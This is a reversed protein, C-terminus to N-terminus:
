VSSIGVNFPNMKYEASHMLPDQYDLIEDANGSMSFYDEGGFVNPMTMGDMQMDSGYIDVGGHVNPMTTRELGMDGDYVDMGGMVNPQTHAVLQGDSIVDVGGQVNPVNFAMGQSHFIGDPNMHDVVNGDHLIDAGGIGDPISQYLGDGYAVDFLEFLSM